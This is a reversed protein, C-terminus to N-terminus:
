SSWFGARSLSSHSAAVASMFRSKQTQLSQVAQGHEQATLLGEVLRRCLAFLCESVIVSPAYFLSGAQAYQDVEQMALAYRGPEQACLATLVSADIVIAPPSSPPTTAM